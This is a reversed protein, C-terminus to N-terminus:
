RIICICFMLYDITECHYEFDEMFDIKITLAYREKENICRGLHELRRKLTYKNVEGSLFVDFMEFRNGLHKRIWTTKGMGAMESMVIINSKFLNAFVNQFDEDKILQDLQGLSQNINEFNENDFMNKMQTGQNNFILLNFNLNDYRSEIIKLLCNKVEMVTLYELRDIGIIFYLRKFPDLMCRRCFSVIEYKTTDKKCFLIQSLSCMSENAEYLIKCIMKYINVQSTCTKIRKSTFISSTNLKIKDKVKIHESWGKITEYTCKFVQYIGQPIKMALEFRILNKPISETILSIVQESEENTANGRLHQTLHYLKKGYFYTMLYSEPAYYNHLLEKNLTKELKILGENAKQLVNLDRARTQYRFQLYGKASDCEFYGPKGSSDNMLKLLLEFSTLIVGLQRLQYFTQCMTELQVGFIAFDNMLLTFPEQSSSNESIIKAKNLLEEFEVTSIPYSSTGEEYKASIVFKKSQISYHINVISNYLSREIIKQNYNQDKKTKEALNKIHSSIQGNLDRLYKKIKRQEEKPVQTFKFVIQEFSKESVLFKLNKNIVELKNVIDLNENDCEERMSKIFEDATDKVFKFCDLSNALDKLMMPMKYTISSEYDSVKLIKSKTDAKAIDACSIKSKDKGKFTDNIYKVNESFKDRKLNLFGPGSIVEMPEYIKMVKNFSHIIKCNTMIQAQDDSSILLATMTRAYLQSLDQWTVRPMYKNYDSVTFREADKFRKFVDSFEKMTQIARDYYEPLTATPTCKSKLAEYFLRYNQCTNFRDWERQNLLVLSQRYSEDNQLIGVNFTMFRTQIDTIHNRHRNFFQYENFYIENKTLIDTCIKINSKIEELKKVHEQIFQRIQFTYNSSEPIPRKNYIIEFLDLKNPSLINKVSIFEILIDKKLGNLFRDVENFLLVFYKNEPNKFYSDVTSSKTLSYACLINEHLECLDKTRMFRMFSDEIVPQYCGDIVGMFENFSLIQLKKPELIFGRVAECLGQTLTPDEINFLSKLSQLKSDKSITPLNLYFEFFSPNLTHIFAKKGFLVKFFEEQLAPVDKLVGDLLLKRCIFDSYDVRKATMESPKLYYEDDEEGKEEELVTTLSLVMNSVTNFYLRRIQDNTSIIRTYADLYDKIMGRIFGLSANLTRTGFAQAQSAYTHFCYCIFTLLTTKDSVM